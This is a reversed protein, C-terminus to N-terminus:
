ILGLWKAVDPGIGIVNLTIPLLLVGLCNIRRCGALVPILGILMAVATVALGAGGTFTATIALAM